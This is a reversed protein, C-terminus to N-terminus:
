RKLCRDWLTGRATLQVVNSSPATRACGSSTSSRRRKAAATRILLQQLLLMLYCIHPLQLRSDHRQMALQRLGRLTLFGPLAYRQFCLALEGLSADCVFLGV